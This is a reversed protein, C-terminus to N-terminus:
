IAYTSVLPTHLYRHITLPYDIRSTYPFLSMIIGDCTPINYVYRRRYGMRYMPRRPNTDVINANQNSVIYFSLITM